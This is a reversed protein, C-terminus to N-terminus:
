ENSKDRIEKMMSARDLMVIGEEEFTGKKTKKSPKVVSDNVSGINDAYVTAMADDDM